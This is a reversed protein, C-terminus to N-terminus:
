GRGLPVKALTMKVGAAKAIAVLHRTAMELAEAPDDFGHLATGGDEHAGDDILVIARDGAQYSSSQELADIMDNGINTLRDHPEGFSVQKVTPNM